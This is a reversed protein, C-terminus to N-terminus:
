SKVPAKVNFFIVYFVPVVTLTLVSAFTLGAMITVAMGVFFADMLLPLMGLVTTGAAMMVPRCRSLSAQVVADWVDENSKLELNIQDLLVIANKILMGSLSLFGLLPMFGFPENTALLGASVGILALPVTLWIILPHRLSNFLVVTIIMMLAAMVPIGGALAGQADSSSEFEGGWSMEYGVPLELAMVKPLMREFLESALEGEPPEGGVTITRKRDLRHIQADEWGTSFESVVQNIQITSRTGPSWILINGIQSVDKREAEPARSYIPILDDSERFVGVLTGNFNSELAENLDARDVGAFQAKYEEYVPRVVKVRQRWNDKIAVGGSERLLLKVQESLDRLVEPNPGTFKVEYSSAPSPGLNLRQLKPQADPFNVQIYDGFKVMLDAIDRHDTVDVLLMGYSSNAKEAPYTLMFRPAGAGVFTAVQTVRDDAMVFAEIDELDTSTQRIDSGEPLWYHILFKPITSSPFFSGKLQAFGIIALVMLVVLVAVALWRRTMCTELVNRYMHFLKSDYLPATTGNDSESSSAAQPIFWYCLLPTITIATVWSLLLSYLMVQFLSRCFEGTSDESTGIAAFALIAILTAGLLPWLTQQVSEEAAKLRNMGSQIRVMMGETIVIANDVLMGLAIILAGLSIRELAVDNLRMFIFTAVVTIVLVSGIILGARLGMFILLVVIVIILAQMLSLIFGDIAKKVADPQFAIPSVELGIPTQEQLEQLRAQVGKGLKMVNGGSITSISLAVAPRGNFRLIKSAPSIDERYVRAVDRLYILNADEDAESSERLIMAGIDSVEGIGSPADMRVYDRGVRVSGAPVISNQQSLKQYVEDQSIGLSALKERSFEVYIGERQAGWLDVKAVDPVLSLERQLFKAHEYIEKSSFGDGTVAYVVGFVDGYDDQVIADEVGPPLNSQADSVKSRLEQWIGPLSDKDYKDKMEVTIMSIGAKSLSRIENVQSMRQIERELVETVEQEVEEPSAGPYRTIVMAEKITYEPDELRSLEKYSVFGGVVMVLTMVITVIKNEIAYRAINM